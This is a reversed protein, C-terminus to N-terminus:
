LDSDNLQLGDESEKQTHTHTHRGLEEVLIRERRKHRKKYIIVTNFTLSNYGAAAQAYISPCYPEFDCVDTAAGGAGLPKLAVRRRAVPM